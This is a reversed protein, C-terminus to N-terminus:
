YLSEKINWSHNKLVSQTRFFVHASQASTTSKSMFEIQHFSGKLKEKCHKLLNAISAGASRRANFLFFKTREKVGEVFGHPYDAYCIIRDGYKRLMDWIKQNKVHKM